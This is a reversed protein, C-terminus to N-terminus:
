FSSIPCSFLAILINVYQKQFCILTLDWVSKRGYLPWSYQIRGSDLMKLAGFRFLVPFDLIFQYIGTMFSINAMDRESHKSLPPPKM